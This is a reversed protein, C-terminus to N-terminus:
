GVGGRVMSTAGGGWIFVGGGVHVEARRRVGKMNLDGIRIAYWAEGEM